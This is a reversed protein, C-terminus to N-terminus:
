HGSDAQQLPHNPIRRRGLEVLRHSWRALEATQCLSSVSVRGTLDNRPTVFRINQSMKVGSISTTRIFTTGKM